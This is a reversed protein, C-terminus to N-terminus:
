AEFDDGFQSRKNFHKWSRHERKWVKFEAEERESQERVEAFWSRALQNLDDQHKTSRALSKPDSPTDDHEM